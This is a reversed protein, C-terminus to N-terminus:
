RSPSASSLWSCSQPDEETAWDPRQSSGLSRIIAMELARELLPDPYNHRYTIKASSPLNTLHNLVMSTLSQTASRKVALM